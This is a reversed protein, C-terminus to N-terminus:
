IVSSTGYNTGAHLKFVQLLWNCMKVRPLAQWVELM